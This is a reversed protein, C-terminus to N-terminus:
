DEDDGEEDIDDVDIKHSDTVKQSEPKWDPDNRHIIPLLKPMWKEMLRPYAWNLLGCSIPLTVLSVVIGAWKNANAFIKAADATRARLLKKVKVNHLVEDFNKGLNTVSEFAKKANTSKEYTKINELREIINESVEKIKPDSAKKIAEIAEDVSAHNQALRRIEWKITAEKNISKEINQLAREEAMNQTIKEELFKKVQKDKKGALESKYKEKLEEGIEKKADKIADVDLLEKLDIKKDKMEKRLLATMKKEALNQRVEVEAKIEDKTFEPHELKIVRKLYNAKPMARLDALAGFGGTSAQQAMFNNFVKNVSLQMAMAIVASIPQRMASYWKTEKDEKSFPNGAIFIPAVVATGVATVLTNLIEGDNQGLYTLARPLFKSNKAIEENIKRNNFKARFAVKNNNERKIRSNVNNVPTINM